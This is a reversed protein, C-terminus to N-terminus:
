LIKRSVDYFINRIRSAGFGLSRHILTRFSPEATAKGSRNGSGYRAKTEKPSISGFPELGAQGTRKMDSIHEMKCLIQEPTM